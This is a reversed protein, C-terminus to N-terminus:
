FIPHFQPILSLITTGINNWNEIINSFQPFAITNFLHKPIFTWYIVIAKRKQNIPNNGCQANKSSDYYSVFWGQAIQNFNSIKFRASNGSLYIKDHFSMTQPVLNNIGIEGNVAELNESEYIGSAINTCRNEIMRDMSWTHTFYNCDTQKLQCYAEYIEIDEIDKLAIKIAEPIETFTIEKETIRIDSYFSTESGTNYHFIIPFPSLGTRIRFDNEPYRLSFVDYDRWALSISTFLISILSTLTLNKINMILLFM